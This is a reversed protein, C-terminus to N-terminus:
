PEPTMRVRLISRRGMKTGQEIALENDRLMGESALYAVLPGAATGTAADEWLGVTPNFFRTYATKPAHDDLAYIYCGEAQVQKLVALLKDAEPLAADVTAANRIRVMLHAAGTDAPRPKPKSLIDSSDLRLAKVLPVTNELPDLLRLAAQRMRGHLAGRGKLSISESQRGTFSAIQIVM